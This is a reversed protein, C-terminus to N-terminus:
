DSACRWIDLHTLELCEHRLRGQCATVGSFLLTVRNARAHTYTTPQALHKIRVSQGPNSFFLLLRASRQSPPQAPSPPGVRTFPERGSLSHCPKNMAPRPAPSRGRIVGVWERGSTGERGVKGVGVGENPSKNRDVNRGPRDGPTEGLQRPNPPPPHPTKVM